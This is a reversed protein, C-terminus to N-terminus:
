YNKNLKIYKYDHKKSIKDNTHTIIYQRTHTQLTNWDHHFIKKNTKKNPHSNSTQKSQQKPQDITQLLDKWRKGKKRKRRM